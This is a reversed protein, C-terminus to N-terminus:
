TDAGPSVLRSPPRTTDWQSAAVLELKRACTANSDHGGGSSSGGSSAQRKLGGTGPNLTGAGLRRKLMSDRRYSSFDEKLRHVDRRFRYVRSQLVVVIFLLIIALSGLVLPNGLWSVTTGLARRRAFGWAPLLQLRLCRM